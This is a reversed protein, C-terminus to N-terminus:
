LLQFHMLLFSHILKELSSPFQMKEHPQWKLTPSSFMMSAPLISLPEHLINAHEDENNEDDSLLLTSQFDPMICTFSKLNEPLYFPSSIAPTFAIYLTHLHSLRVLCDSDVHHMNYIYLEEVLIPLIANTLHVISPSSHECTLKLVRISIPLAVVASISPFINSVECVEYTSHHKDKVFLEVDSIICVQRKLLTKFIISNKMKSTTRCFRNLDPCALFETVCEWIDFDITAHFCLKKAEQLDTKEVHARKKM